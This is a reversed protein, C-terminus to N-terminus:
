PSASFSGTAFEGPGPAAGKLAVNIDSGSVIICEGKDLDVISHGKNQVTIKPLNGIDYCVASAGTLGASLVQTLRGEGMFWRITGDAFVSTIASIVFVVSVSLKLFYKM